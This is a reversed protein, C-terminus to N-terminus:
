NLALGPRPGVKRILDGGWDFRDTWVTNAVVEGIRETVNEYTFHFFARDKVIPGGLAFSDAIAARSVPLWM